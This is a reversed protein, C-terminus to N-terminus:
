GTPKKLGGPLLRLLYLTTVGLRRKPGHLLELAQQGEGGTLSNKMDGFRRGPQEGNLKRQAGWAGTPIM